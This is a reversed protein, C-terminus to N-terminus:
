LTKSRENFITKFSIECFIYNCKLLIHFSLYYTKKKKKKQHSPEFLLISKM